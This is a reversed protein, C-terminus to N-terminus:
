DQMLNGMVRMDPQRAGVIKSQTNIIPQDLYARALPAGSDLVGLSILLAIMACQAAPGAGDDIKLAVGLKLSPLAAVYVGEAGTKPIVDAGSEIIRTCLRGTGALYFPQAKVAARLRLIGARRVPALAAPDAIRAFATALAGLPLAFNPAGCGDIGLELDSASILALDSLAAMVRQQVPHSLADYGATPAGLYKAVTLFGTHKGSCNNHIRRSAAGLRVLAEAAAPYSPMHPGCDLDAETCGIRELWAEVAAVHAPEGGHSACALALEIDGLGYAAAAGTEILPLAQILKIASRPFVKRGIDGVSAVIRKGDSVAFAGRHLSEVWGGRFERVLIPNVQPATEEATM